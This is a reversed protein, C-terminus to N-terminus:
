PLVGAAIMRAYLLSAPIWVLQDDYEGGPAGTARPEHWVFVGDNDVNEAEDVGGTAPITNKGTSFIVAVVTNQNTVARADGAAAWTGCSPPSVSRFLM